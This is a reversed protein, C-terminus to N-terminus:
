INIIFRLPNELLEKVKKLFLVGERGHILGHDYTLSILM